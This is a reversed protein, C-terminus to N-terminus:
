LEYTVLVKVPKGLINASNATKNIIRISSGQMFYDFEYGANITYGKPVFTSAVYEVHIEVALVKTAPVPLPIDVFGGQAAGTTGTLKVMKVAPATTGGLKTFGNVELEAGPNNTGIGVYGNGEVRMKETGGVRFTLENNVSYAIQGPFNDTPNNFNIAGLIGTPGPILSKLELVSGNVHNTSVFRAVSQVDWVDMRWLPNNTGIGLNGTTGIRVREVDGTTLVLPSSSNTGVYFTNAFTSAASNGWGIHGYLNADNIFQTLSYGTPASSRVRMPILGPSYVELKVTPTTTGMGINGNWKYTMVNGANSNYVNFDSETDPLSSRGALHWFRNTNINTFAIRGWDLSDIEAVMIQPTLLGSNSAVRLKATQLTDGIAVDGNSHIRMRETDNTTLVVPINTISGAFFKNGWRPASANGYGVHGALVGGSSAYWSGSWGFASKNQITEVQLSSDTTAVHFRSFPSNTGVGVRGNRTIRMKEGNNIKSATSFIINGPALNTSVTSDVGFIIASNNTWNGGDWARGVMVGTWDGANTLAPAALTGRSKHFIFQPYGSATGAVRMVLDSNSGDEDSLDLRSYPYTLGPMLPGMSVKGNDQIRMREINNTRMVLDATDKTGIFNVSANLGTNGDTKWGLDKNQDSFRVWGPLSADFYYLGAPENAVTNTQFILLGNAPTSILNRQAHTMRPALLGKDTSNVDLISSPDPTNTNVGVGQGFSSLGAFLIIIFVLIAFFLDFLRSTSMSHYSKNKKM